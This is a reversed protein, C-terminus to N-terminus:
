PHTVSVNEAWELSVLSDIVAEEQSQSLVWEYQRM